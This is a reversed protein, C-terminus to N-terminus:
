MFLWKLILPSMSSFGLTILYHTMNVFEPWSVQFMRVLQELDRLIRSLKAADDAATFYRRLPSRLALDHCQTSIASLNSLV